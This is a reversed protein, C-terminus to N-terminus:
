CHSLTSRLSDYYVLSLHTFHFGYHLCFVHIFVDRSGPAFYHVSCEDQARPTSAECKELLPLAGRGRAASGGNGWWSATNSRDGVFFHSDLLCAAAKTLCTRSGHFCMPSGPSGTMIQKLIRAPYLPSMCSTYLHRAGLCWSFCFTGQSAMASAVIPCQRAPLCICWVPPAIRM